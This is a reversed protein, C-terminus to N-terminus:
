KKTRGKKRKKSLVSNSESSRQIGVQNTGEEERSVREIQQHTSNSTITENESFKLNSLSLDVDQDIEADINKEESEEEVVETVQEKLADLEGTWGCDFAWDLLLDILKFYHSYNRFQHDTNRSVLSVYDSLLNLLTADKTLRNKTSEVSETWNIQKFPEQTRLSTCGIVQPKGAKLWDSTNLNVERQKIKCIRM